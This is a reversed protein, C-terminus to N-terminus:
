KKDLILHSAIGFVASIYYPIGIDILRGTVLIPVVLLPLPLLIAARWSHTIGRHKFISFFVGFFGLWAAWQFYRTIILVLDAILVIVYIIRRSRSGTDIDPFLAGLYCVVFCIPFIWWEQYFFHFDRHIYYLWAIIPILALPFVQVGAKAHRKFGPL